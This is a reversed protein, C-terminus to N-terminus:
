PTNQEEFMARRAERVAVEVDVRQQVRAAERKPESQLDNAIILAGM